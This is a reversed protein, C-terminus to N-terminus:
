QLGGSGPNFVAEIRNTRSGDVDIRGSDRYFTIRPGSVTNDGSVIRAGPGSLVLVRRAVRYEAKSATATSNDIHIRVKGTATIRTVRRKGTALVSGSSAAGTDDNSRSYYIMMRQSDIVTTGQTAHVRGIFEATGANNDTVLRDANITIPQAPRARKKEKGAKAAGSLLFPCCFLGVLLSVFVFTFPARRSGPNFYSQM